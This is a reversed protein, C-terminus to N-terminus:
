LVGVADDLAAAVRGAGAGLVITYHNVDKVEEITANPQAEKFGLLAELPIFPDDDLLGRPARLLWLPATVQSAAANSTGDMILEAGDARVADESVVSRGDSGLDYRVYEEVDENWRGTFAPHQQWFAVYDEPTDFTMRLREIAPGLFADLAADPAVGEPLVVPLGGDVLVVAGARSPAAVAARAVVYAGMSHGTLVAREAGAQDLVAIVDDAHAELSGRPPGVSASKGRGRLDPALVCVEPRRELLERVVAQWGMHSATIGHAAVVVAEADAPSAGARQVHLAGGEVEVELTESFPNV